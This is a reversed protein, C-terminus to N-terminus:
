ASGILAQIFVALAVGAMLCLGNGILSLFQEFTKKTFM